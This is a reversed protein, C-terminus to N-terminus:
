YAREQQIKETECVVSYYAAPTFEKEWLSYIGM